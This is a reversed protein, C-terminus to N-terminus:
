EAANARPFAILGLTRAAEVSIIGSNIGQESQYRRVADQTRRDMEGTVPGAYIARARLARQLSAIFEPDQAAACPSEFWREERERLIAQRTETRYEAPRQVTGDPGIEAPRLLIQETVTEVVAPTVDKGWCTGPPAWPPAADATFLLERLAPEREGQPACAALLTLASAAAATKKLSM